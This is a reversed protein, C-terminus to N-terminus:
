RNQSCLVFDCLRRASIRPIAYEECEVGFVIERSLTAQQDSPLRVRQQRLTPTQKALPQPSPSSFYLSTLPIYLPTPMLFELEVLELYRVLSLQCWNM